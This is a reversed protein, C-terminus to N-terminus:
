RGIQQSDYWSDFWQKAAKRELPSLGLGFEKYAAQWVAMLKFGDDFNEPIEFAVRLPGNDATSNDSDHM